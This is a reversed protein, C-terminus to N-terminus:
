GAIHLLCTAIRAPAWRSPLLLPPLPVPRAVRPRCSSPLPPESKQTWHRRGAADVPLPFQLFYALLLHCRRPQQAAFWCSRGQRSALCCLCGRLRGSAQLQLLLQRPHLISRCHGLRNCCTHPWCCSPHPPLPLVSLLPLLLLLPPLLLLPLLAPVSDLRGAGAQQRRAM